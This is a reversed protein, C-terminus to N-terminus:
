LHFLFHRLNSDSYRSCRHLHWTHCHHFISKQLNTGNNNACYCCYCNSNNNPRGEEFFGLAGDNLTPDSHFKAPNNKLYTRMSQSLGIKQYSMVSELHRGHRWKVCLLTAMPYTCVWRRGPAYAAADALAQDMTCEYKNWLDKVLDRILILGVSVGHVSKM